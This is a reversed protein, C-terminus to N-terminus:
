AKSGEDHLRFLLRGLGALESHLVARSDTAGVEPLVPMTMAIVSGGGPRPVSRLYAGGLRGPAIERLYDVTGAAADVLVRLPFSRGNKTVQWGVSASGDVQDAFGPAWEPLRSADALVTIVEHAALESEIADTITRSSPPSAETVPSTTAMRKDDIGTSSKTM